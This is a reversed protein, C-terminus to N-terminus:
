LLSIFSDLDKSDYTYSYTYILDLIEQRDEPPIPISQNGNNDQFITNEIDVNNIGSNNEGYVECSLFTLLVLFLFLFSFTNSQIMISLNKKKEM